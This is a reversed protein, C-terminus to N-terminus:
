KGSSAPAPGAAPATLVLGGLVVDGNPLRDYEVILDPFHHREVTGRPNDDTVQEIKQPEGLMEAAAPKLMGMSAGNLLRGNFVGYHAQKLHPNPRQVRHIHIATLVGETLLFDVARGNYGCLNKTSVECRFDMLREITSVQAGFRIAGLGKGPLIALSPGVPVPWASEAAPARAASPASSAAPPTSAPASDSSQCSSCRLSFLGLLVLPTISARSHIM